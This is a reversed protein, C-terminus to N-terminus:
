FNSTRPATCTQPPSQGVRMVLTVQPTVDTRLTGRRRSRRVASTLVKAPLGAAQLHRSAEPMTIWRGYPLSSLWRDIATDQQDANM